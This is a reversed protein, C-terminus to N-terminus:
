RADFGALYPVFCGQSERWSYVWEEPADGLKKWGEWSRIWEDGRWGGEWGRAGGGMYAGVM